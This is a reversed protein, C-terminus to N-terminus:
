TAVIMATVQIDNKAVDETNVVWGCSWNMWLLSSATNSHAALPLSDSVILQILFLSSIEFEFDFLICFSPVFLTRLTLFAVTSLLPIYQHIAVLASLSSIDDLGASSNLLIYLIILIDVHTQVDKDYLEVMM